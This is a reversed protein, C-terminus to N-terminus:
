PVTVYMDPTNLGILKNTIEEEVLNEDKNLLDIWENVWKVYTRRLSDFEEWSELLYKLCNKPIRLKEENQNYENYRRYIKIGKLNDNKFIFKKLNKKNIHQFIQKQKKTIEEQILKELNKTPSM